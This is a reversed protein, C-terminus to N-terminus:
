GDGEAPPGDLDDGLYGNVEALLFGSPMFSGSGRALLSGRDDFLEAEATVVRRSQNVVRGESRLAGDVVPRFFDLHFSSTLVLVDPVKSNAAFFAADDLMRFYLSGHVAGAAHLFTPQIPLRVTARGDGVEAVTGMWRSVPAVAYARELGRFHEPYVTNM